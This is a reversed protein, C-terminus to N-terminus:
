TGRYIHTRWLETRLGRSVGRHTEDTRMAKVGARICVGERQSNRWGLNRGISTVIQHFMEGHLGYVCWTLCDFSFEYFFVVFFLVSSMIKEKFSIRETDRIEILPMRM